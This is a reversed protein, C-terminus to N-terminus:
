KFQKLIERYQKTMLKIMGKKVFQYWKFEMGEMGRISDILMRKLFEYEEFSLMLGTQDKSDALEKVYSFFDSVNQGQAGLPSTAFQKKVEEMFKALFKKSNKDLTVKYKRKGKGIRQLNNMMGMMASMNNMEMPNMMNPNVRQPKM